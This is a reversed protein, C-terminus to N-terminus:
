PLQLRRPGSGGDWQWLAGDAALALTATDGAATALVGGLLQRPEIGFGEGWAWLSGDHRIGGFPALRHRHQTRRRLDRGLPRGQRGPRACGAPRLPQRRHGAGRRRPAFLHAHGTHAKVAVAADATRIFDTSGSLRGDGYQGRHALGKVWLTGDQRVHYDAGDGICAAVVDAAVRQPTTGGRALAPALCRDRVLGIRRRCIAGRGADLTRASRTTAGACCGAMTSCRLAPGRSVGVQRVGGRQRVPQGQGRWAYAVGDILAM